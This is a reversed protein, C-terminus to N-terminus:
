AGLVRDLYPNAFARGPDIRDRLRVADDFRPYLRRMAEADLTHLKGWHPRAGFGALVESVAAFYERHEEGAPQHAAVYLSERGHSTSLWASDAAACRIELPFMSAWGEVRFLDRLAAMVGATEELPMSQETETFRVRRSAAFIEHSASVEDRGGWVATCLRNLRPVTGPLLRGIRCTAALGLNGLVEDEILRRSQSRRTRARRGPELRRTTKTLVKESHGFWYFEVHDEARIREPWGAVVDDFDELREVIHLDFAEVCQLTVETIIGFAGLGVRLGDLLEPATDDVDLVEGTGTVLRMGVVQSSVSGYALGTGHTGTSVAGAITQRDIDGLNEMALGFPELLGPIRWLPTGARLRVRRSHPDVDILGDMSRLDVQVEPAVAIGTFSHGSGVARIREGAGLAARVERILAAETHPVLVRSPRARVLGAWNTWERPSSRRGPRSLRGPRSM